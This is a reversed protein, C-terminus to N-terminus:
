KADAGVSRVWGERERAFPQKEKEVLCGELVLADGAHLLSPLESFRRDFLRNTAREIVLLRSNGRQPAPQQAILHGPLDYDLDAVGFTGM